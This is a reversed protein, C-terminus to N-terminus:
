GCPKLGVVALADEISRVVFVEWGDAEFAQQRANVKGDKTKIEVLVTERRKGNRYSVLLDPVGGGLRSLDVVRCGVRELAKVIEGHNADKRGLRAPQRM